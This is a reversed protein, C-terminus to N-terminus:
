DWDEYEVDESEGPDPSECVFGELSCHIVEVDPATYERSTWPYNDLPSPATM